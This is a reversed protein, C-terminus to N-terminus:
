IRWVLTNMVRSILADYGALLAMLVIVCIMVVVSAKGAEGLTPWTVKRLESETEILLDANKPKETWRYLLAMGIIFTVLAIVFAWTLDVGLIPIRAGDWLRQGLSENFMGSLEARLSTCGYFVMIALSWFAAMRAMRGQDQRYAM